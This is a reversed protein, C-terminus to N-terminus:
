AATFYSYEITSTGSSTVTDVKLNLAEEVPFFLWETPALDAIIQGNGIKIHVNDSTGITGTNKAYLYVRKDTESSTVCTSARGNVSLFDFEVDGKSFQFKVTRNFSTAAVTFTNSGLTLATSPGFFWQGASTTKAVRFNAGGSPLTTVNMTFTQSAQSSAGDSALTATLVYPWSSPGSAFDSCANIYTKSPTGPVLDIATSTVNLTGSEIAPLTVNFTSSQTISLVDSTVGTGSLTLKSTITSM